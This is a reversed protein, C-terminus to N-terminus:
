VRRTGEWDGRHYPPPLDICLEIRDLQTAVADGDAVEGPVAVEVGRDMDAGDDDLVPLQVDLRAAAGDGVRLGAVLVGLRDVLGAGDEARDLNGAFLRVPGSRIRTRTM